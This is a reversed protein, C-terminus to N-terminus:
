QQLTGANDPSSKGADASSKSQLSFCGAEARAKVDHFRKRVTRAHDDSDRFLGGREGRMNRMRVYSDAEVFEDYSIQAAIKDLTCSCAYLTEYKVSNRLAMCEQVYRVRDITPFDNATATSTACLTMLAGYCCALRIRRDAFARM